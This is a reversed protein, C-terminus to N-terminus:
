DLVRNALKEDEGAWKGSSENILTNVVKGTADIGRESFGRLEVKGNEHILYQCDEYDGFVFKRDLPDDERKVELHVTEMERTNYETRLVVEDGDKLDRFVESVSDVENM